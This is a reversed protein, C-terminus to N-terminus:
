GRRFWRWRGKGSSAGTGQKAVRLREKLEEIRADRSALKDQLKGLRADVDRHIALLRNLEDTLARTDAPTPSNERKRSWEQLERGLKYAHTAESFFGTAWQRMAADPPPGERRAAERATEYVRLLHDVTDDLTATRRVHDVVAEVRDRDWRRLQARVADITIPEPMCGYGFSRRRLGDITEPMVLDGIGPEDCVIVACGTFLAELAAKGKAFVLDSRALVPAPDSVANGMGAGVAECVIEEAACADRITAFYNDERAYNSFVLARGPKEPLPPRPPFRAPDVGNLVLTIRSPDIGERDTLRAVCDEDVAVHAKVNPARCPAEQWPPVGRCFSIVAASPFRLAALSTEWQHHGHIVEPEWGPPLDQLDDVVPVGLARIRDAVDGLQRSYAAAEHGRAIVRGIADAASLETGAPRDFTNNTYLIRM